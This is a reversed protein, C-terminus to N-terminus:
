TREYQVEKMNEFIKQTEDLLRILEDFKEEGINAEITKLYENQRTEFEKALERGKETPRVFFSRKDEDSAEKQIYGKEVLIQIHATIMPKSVGIMESLMLPTFNEEKHSVINLLGMESPRIPLDKKLGIYDRSFKSFVINANTYKNM